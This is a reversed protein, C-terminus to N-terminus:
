CWPLQTPALPGALRFGGSDLDVDIALVYGHVPAQVGDIAFFYVRRGDPSVVPSDVSVLGLQQSFDFTSIETFGRSVDISTLGNMGSM